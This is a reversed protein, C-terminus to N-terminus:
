SVADIKRNNYAIKVDASENKGITIEFYFVDYVILLSCVVHL